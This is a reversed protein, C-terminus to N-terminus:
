DRGRDHRLNIVHVQEPDEEDHPNMPKNLLSVMVNVFDKNQKPQTNQEHEVIFKELVNDLAKSVAKLSRTLGQM